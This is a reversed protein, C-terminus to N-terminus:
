SEKGELVAREHEAEFGASITHAPEESAVVMPSNRADRAEWADRYAKAANLADRQTPHLEHFYYRQGDPLVLYPSYAQSQSIYEFRAGISYKSM